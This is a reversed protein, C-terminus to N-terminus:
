ESRRGAKVWRGVEEASPPAPLRSWNAQIDDLIEERGKPRDPRYHSEGAQGNSPAFGSDTEKQPDM